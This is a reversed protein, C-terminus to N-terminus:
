ASLRTASIEKVISRFVGELKSPDSVDYYKDQDSACDRLLAANGEVLRVTYVTAAKRASACALRTREDIIRANRNVAGNVLSQTNDGDTLVIMFRKAKPGAPAEAFPAANSLTALGWVVGLGVNTNGRPRMDGISDVLARYDRHEYLSTLPRIAVIDNGKGDSGAYRSFRRARHKTAVDGTAPDATVDHPQDRDEVYGTWDLRDSPHDFRLWDANRHKTDLRVETDFPVISVKVTNPERAVARLDEMLRTAAKKLEDIKRKGHPAENMSGTNDLVLALEIDAMGWAAEAESAIALSGFGLLGMVATQVTGSAAVRITKGSRTVTVKDASFGKADKLLTGVIQRGHRDLRHQNATEAERVLGLAAADVAQQLQAKAASARGYDVAAGALGMVPVISLGFIAATAGSRDARFRQFISM